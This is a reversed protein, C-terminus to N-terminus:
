CHKPVFSKNEFCLVASSLDSFKKATMLLLGATLIWDNIRNSSCSASNLKKWMVLLFCMQTVSSLMTVFPYPFDKHQMSNRLKVHIKAPSHYNLVSIMKFFYLYKSHLIVFTNNFPFFFRQHNPTWQKTLRFIACNERKSILTLDTYM